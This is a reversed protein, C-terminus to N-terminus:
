DQIKTSLFVAAREQQGFHLLWSFALSKIGIKEHTNKFPRQRYQSADIELCYIKVSNILTIKAIIKNKHKPIDSNNVIAKTINGKTKACVM